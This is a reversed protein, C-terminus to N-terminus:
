AWERICRRSLIENATVGEGIQGGRGGDEGFLQDFRPPVEEDFTRWPWM